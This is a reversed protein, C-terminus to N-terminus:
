TLSEEADDNDDKKPASRKFKQSMEWRLKAQLYKFQTPYSERKPQELPASDIIAKMNAAEVNM